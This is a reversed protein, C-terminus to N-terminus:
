WAMTCWRVAAKRSARRITVVGSGALKGDPYVCRPIASGHAFPVFSTPSIWGCASLLIDDRRQWGGRLLIVFLDVVWMGPLRRNREQFVGDPGNQQADSRDNERDIEKNGIHFVAGQPRHGHSDDTDHAPVQHATSLDLWGDGAQRYAHPHTHSHHHHDTATDTGRDLVDEVSLCKLWM